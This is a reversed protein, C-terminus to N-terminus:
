ESRGIEIVLEIRESGRDVAISVREGPMTDAVADILSKFDTIKKRGFRVVVDDALMGGAEAASGKKVEVIRAVETSQNGSVGLTPKFNPLYGWAQGAAMREWSYDYHDIPVHLNDAVDNGIRSHVAILEGAMNFLPGGSDGGILACDTVIVDSRVELLRGVRIVAGRDRDYGGPHGMAICWMGPVLDDSTGLTAHPWPTGGNQDPDIRILGADVHRNMGLTTARIRRGDSLTVVAKLGPRMAVHAATVIYGTGTIIVGCGQAPGIKVSVTCKAARDAVLRQQAEMLRLVDLSKPVGGRRHISELDLPVAVRTGDGPKKGSTQVAGGDGDRQDSPEKAFANEIVPGPSEIVGANVGASDVDNDKAALPRVSPGAALSGLVVLFVCHRLFERSCRTRDTKVM